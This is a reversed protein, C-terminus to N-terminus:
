HAEQIELRSFGVSLWRADGNQGGTVDVPRAAYAYQFKLFNVGPQLLASPIVWEGSWPNCDFWQHEAIEMGNVSIRLAQNRGPVCHPFAEISLRVDVPHAGWLLAESQQGEAWVGWPEEGSWGSTRLWTM